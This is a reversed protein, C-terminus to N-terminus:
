NGETPVQHLHRLQRIEEDLSFRQGARQWGARGMRSRLDADEALTLLAEAHGGVDGPQVLFGHVGDDILEPLSGNRGSVVPLGAAMAEILSVGFAEEQRSVPGLQNHATFIHAEQRLKEGTAGDIAGLLQIYERNPSAQRLAECRERLPGDGALVLRGRMGRAVALDFAQIVLDPGKCDILRGLYLILVSDVPRHPSPPESPMPVGLYKVDVRQKSIGIDRLRQATAHSNAIFRINSPLDLVQQAYDSPHERHHPPEPQRLDWTVDYGHCHVFVPKETQRWIAAYKVALNAYHVLIQTVEPREVAARLTALARRTAPIREVQGFRYLLRWMKAELWGDQLVATDFRQELDQHPPVEAALVAVDDALGDLMRRMWLVSPLNIDIGLYLIGM